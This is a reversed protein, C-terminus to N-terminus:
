RRRREEEIRLARIERMVEDLPVSEGRDLADLGAEIEAAEEETPIYEDGEHDPNSLAKKREFEARLERMEKM